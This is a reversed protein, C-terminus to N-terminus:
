DYRKIKDVGLIDISKSKQITPAPVAPNVAAIRAALFPCLTTTNSFPSTAPGNGRPSDM